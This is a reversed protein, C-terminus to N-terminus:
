EWRSEVLRCFLDPTIIHWIPEASEDRPYLTTHVQQTGCPTGPSMVLWPKGLGVAYQHGALGLFKLSLIKPEDMWFSADFFM